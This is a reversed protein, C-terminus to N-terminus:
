IGKLTDKKKNIKINLEIDRKSIVTQSRQITIISLIQQLGSNDDFTRPLRAYINHNPSMQFDLFTQDILPKISHSQRYLKRM